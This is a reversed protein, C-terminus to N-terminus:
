IFCKIQPMKYKINLLGVWLSGTMPTALCSIWFDKVRISFKQLVGEVIWNYGTQWIGGCFHMWVTCSSLEWFNVSGCFWQHKPTLLPWLWRSCQIGTMWNWDGKCTFMFFLYVVYCIYLGNDVDFSRRAGCQEWKSLASLWHQLTATTFSSIM